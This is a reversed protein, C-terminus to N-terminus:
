RDRKRNQGAHVGGALWAFHVNFFRQFHRIEAAPAAAFDLRQRQMEGVCLLIKQGAQSNKAVSRHSQLRVGCM